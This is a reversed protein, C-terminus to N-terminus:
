QDYMQLINYKYYEDNEEFMLLDKTRLINLFKLTDNEGYYITYKKNDYIFWTSIELTIKGGAEGLEEEKVNNILQQRVTTPDFWAIGSDIGKRDKESVWYDLPVGDNIIHFEKPISGYDNIDYDLGIIDCGNFIYIGENRYNYEGALLILDGRVLDIDNLRDLLMSLINPNKRIIDSADKVSKDTNLSLDSFIQKVDHVHCHGDKRPFGKMKAKNILDYKNVINVLKPYTKILNNLSHCSLDKIIILLIEEPLRDLYDRNDQLKNLYTLIRIISDQNLDTQLLDAISLLKQPSALLIDSLKYVSIKVKEILLNNAIIWDVVSSPAEELEGSFILEKLKQKSKINYKILLQYLDEAPILDLSLSM